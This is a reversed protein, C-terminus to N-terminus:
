RHRRAFLSPVATWLRLQEKICADLFRLAGISAATVAPVSRVEERLQRRVGDPTSAILALTRPVHRAITDMIVFLWFAIQSPADTISRTGCPRDSVRGITAGSM